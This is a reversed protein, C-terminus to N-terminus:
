NPPNKRGEMWGYFGNKWKTAPAELTKYGIWGALLSLTIAVGVFEFWRYLPLDFETFVHTRLLFIIIMHFLYTSFSVTAIWISLRNDLIKGLYKTTPM